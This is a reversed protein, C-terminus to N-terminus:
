IFIIQQCNENGQMYPNSAGEKINNEQTSVGVKFFGKFTFRLNATFERGHYSEQHLLHKPQINKKRFVLQLISLQFM